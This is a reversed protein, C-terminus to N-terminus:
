SAYRRLRRWKYSHCLSIDRMTRIVLLEPIPAAVVRNAACLPSRTNRTPFSPWSHSLREAGSFTSTGVDCIFVRDARGDLGPQRTEAPDIGNELRRAHAPSPEAVSRQVLTRGCGPPLHHVHVHRPREEHATSHNPMPHCCLPGAGDQVHAAHEGLKRLWLKKGSVRVRRAFAGDFRQGKGSGAVVGQM